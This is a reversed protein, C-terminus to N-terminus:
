PINGGMIPNREQVMTHADNILQSAAIMNIIQDRKVPIVNDMNLASQTSIMAFIARSHRSLEVNFEMMEKATWQGYPKEVFSTFELNRAPLLDRVIAARQMEVANAVETLQQPDSM